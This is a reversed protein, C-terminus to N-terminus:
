SRSPYQGELCVVYNIALFPPLNNHSQTNGTTGIQVDLSNENLAIDTPGDAFYKGSRAGTEPIFNGVPGKVLTTSTLARTYGTVTHTHNPMQSQIITETENGGKTGQSYSQLGPGNGMALSGVPVRGQLDPLGFTSRGDGGYMTGLISFLATHNSIALLQGECLAFARPAFNGAFMRVEGITGNGM